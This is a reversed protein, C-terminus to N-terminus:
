DWQGTPGPAATTTTTEPFSEGELAEVEDIISDVRNNTCNLEESYPDALGEARDWSWISTNYRQGPATASALTPNELTFDIVCDVCLLYGNPAEYEARWGLDNGEADKTDRKWTLNSFTM